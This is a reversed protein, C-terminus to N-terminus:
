RALWADFRQTLKDGNERWFQSDIELTAALNAPSTPSLALQDPPLGDNAGKALGGYATSGAVLAQRVPDGMFALLKVADAEAPSGKLVVWSEATSLSGTWQIGFHRVGQRNAATIRTNPATSLLVEGSGLIQAAQSPPQWWVVYPKIQDLKRFARDVGDDTRLLRYIDSAAVGDALLAIELNTEASRRLGRKGPYRAVDWFDSWSPMGPFKDRDWSLVYSFAAAGVGCDSVGQPLYHDKGGIAAWNLKEFLGEDCGALLEDATVLVIDWDSPGSEVKARLVGIGGAWSETRVATQGTQSFPNFYAQEQADALSGGRTVATLDRAAAPLAASTACLGVALLLRLSM